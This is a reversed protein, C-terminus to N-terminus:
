RTGPPSLPPFTLFRLNLSVNSRQSVNVSSAFPVVSCVTGVADIERQLKEEKEAKRRAKEEQAELM